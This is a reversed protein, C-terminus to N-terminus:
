PTPGTYDVQAALWRGTAGVMTVTITAGRTTPLTVTVVADGIATATIPRTLQGVDPVASPDVTAYLDRLQPTVRPSGDPNDEFGARWQPANKGYTNLLAETFALAADRPDAPGATISAGAPPNSGADGDNDTNSSPSPPSTAAPSPAPALTAPPSWRISVAARPTHSARISSGAPITQPTAPVGCRNSVAIVAVVVAVAALVIGRRGTVLSRLATTM